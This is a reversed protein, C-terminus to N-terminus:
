EEKTATTPKKEQWPSESVSYFADIAKRLDPEFWDGRWSNERVRINGEALLAVDLVAVYSPDDFVLGIKLSGEKGSDKFLVAYFSEGAVGNRHMAMDVIRRVDGRRAALIQNAASLNRKTQTTM